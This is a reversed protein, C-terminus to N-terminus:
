PHITLVTEDNNKTWSRYVLSREALYILYPHHFLTGSTETTSLLLQAWERRVTHKASHDAGTYLKTNYFEVRVTNPHTPDTIESNYRNFWFSYVLQM